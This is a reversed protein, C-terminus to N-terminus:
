WGAWRRGLLKPMQNGGRQAIWAVLNIAVYLAYAAILWAASRSRTLMAIGTVLMFTGIVAPPVVVQNGHLIQGFMVLVAGDGQFLKAFNTLSRLIILAGCGRIFRSM